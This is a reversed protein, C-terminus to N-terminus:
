RHKACVVSVKSFRRSNQVEDVVLVGAEVIVTRRWNHIVISKFVLVKVSPHTLAIGGKGADSSSSELPDWRVISLIGACFSPLELVPCLVANCPQAYM